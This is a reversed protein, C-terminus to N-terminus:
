HSVSTPLRLQSRASRAAQTVLAAVLANWRPHMRGFQAPLYHDIGAVFPIRAVAGLVAALPTLAPWGIRTAAGGIAELIYVAATV